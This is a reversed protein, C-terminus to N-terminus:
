YSLRCYLFTKNVLEITFFLKENHIITNSHYKAFDALIAYPVPDPVCSSAVGWISASSFAAYYILYSPIFIPNPGFYTSYRFETLSFKNEVISNTLLIKIILDIKMSSFNKIKKSFFWRAFFLTEPGQCVGWDGERKPFISFKENEM